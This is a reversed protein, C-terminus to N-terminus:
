ITFVSASSDNQYNRNEVQESYRKRGKNNKKRKFDLIQNVLGGQLKIPLGLINCQQGTVCLKDKTILIFLATDM